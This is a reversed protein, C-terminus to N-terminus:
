GVEFDEKIFGNEPTYDKGITSAFWQYAALEAPIGTKKLGDAIDQIGPPCGAVLVPDKADPHKRCRKIICNGMLMTRTAKGSPAHDKGTLIEVGGLDGVTRAAAMLMIMLPNYVASCGTCLSLDYKPLLVGSVGFKKFAAPTYEDAWKWDAPLNLVCDEVALGGALPPLDTTRGRMAALLRLYDVQAPDHGLVACGVLDADLADTSAVLLDARVARGTHAPGRALAYRGDILSLDPYLLNGLAAINEHLTGGSGHCAVKSRIHLCGKLNKIGLSVTCQNHTKLVPLTIFFDNEFAPESVKLNLNGVPVERYPHDNLDLVTLGYRKALKPLGVYEITYKTSIGMDELTLGGEAVTIRSVGADKLAKLLGELILPTTLVGFPPAPYKAPQGVLNPKVFVHDGPKLSKLGQCLDLARAVDAHPDPGIRLLATPRRSTTEQVPQTM